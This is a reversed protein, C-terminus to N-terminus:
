NFSSIYLIFENKNIISDDMIGFQKQQRSERLDRHSRALHRMENVDQINRISWWELSKASRRTDSSNGTAADCYVYVVLSLVTDGATFKDSLGCKCSSKDICCLLVLTVRLKAFTLQRYFVHILELDLWRLQYGSEASRFTVVM